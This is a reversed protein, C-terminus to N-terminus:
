SCQVQHSESAHQIIQLCTHPHKRLDHSPFGSQGTCDASAEEVALSFLLELTPSWTLFHFVQVGCERM